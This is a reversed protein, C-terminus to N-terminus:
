QETARFQDVLSGARPAAPRPAAAASPTAAAPAPFYMEYIAKARANHTDIVQKAASSNEFDYFSKMRNAPQNAWAQYAARTEQNLQATARQLAAKAQLVRAPDSTSVISQSIIKREFDTLAGLGRQTQAQGLELNAIDAGAMLLAEIRRNRRDAYAADTENALRPIPAAQVIRAEINPPLKPIFPVKSDRALQILAPFLGAKSLVGFADPFNEAGKHVREALTIQSDALSARLMMSELAKGAATGRARAESEVGAKEASLQEQSPPARFAPTASSTTAGQGTAPQPAVPGGSPAAPRGTLRPPVAGATIYNHLERASLDFTGGLERVYVPSLKAEGEINRQALYSRASAQEAPPLMSIWAEAAKITDPTKAEDLAFKTLAAIADKSDMGGVLDWVADPLNLGAQSAAAQIAQTNAAAPAAGPATGAVAVREPPTVVAGPPTSAPTGPSVKNRMGQLARLRQQEQALAIGKEAMGVGSQGMELRMKALQQAAANQKEQQGQMEGAANGFAVGFQGTPNPALFGRSLAFLTDRANPAARAELSRLLDNQVQRLNNMEKYLDQRAVDVTEPMALPKVDERVPPPTSPLGGGQSPASDFASGVMRGLAGGVVAPLFEAM